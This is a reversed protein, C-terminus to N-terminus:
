KLIFNNNYQVVLNCTIAVTYNKALNTQYFIDFNRYTFLDEGYLVGIQENTDINYNLLPISSIELMHSIFGALNVVQPKNEASVVVSLTYNKIKNQTGLELTENSDNLFDYSIIPMPIQHRFDTFDERRVVNHRELDDMWSFGNIVNVPTTGDSRYEVYFGHLDLQQTLYWGLSLEALIDVGLDTSDYLEM